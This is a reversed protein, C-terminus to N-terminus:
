RLLKELFLHGLFGTAGTLFITKDRFFDTIPSNKPISPDVVYERELIEDINEKLELMKLNTKTKAKKKEEM